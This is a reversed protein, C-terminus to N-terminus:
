TLIRYAVTVANFSAKLVICRSIRDRVALLEHVIDGNRMKRHKMDITKDSIELKRAKTIFTHRKISENCNGTELVLSLRSARSFCSFGGMVHFVYVILAPWKWVLHSFHPIWLLRFLPLSIFNVNLYIVPFQM